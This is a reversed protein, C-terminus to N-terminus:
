RTCRILLNVLVDLNGPSNVDSKLLQLLRENGRRVNVVQFCGFLRNLPSNLILKTSPVLSRIFEVKKGIEYRFFIEFVIM